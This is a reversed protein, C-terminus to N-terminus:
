YRYVPIELQFYTSGGDRIMIFEDVLLPCVRGRRMAFAAGFDYKLGDGLCFRASVVINYPYLVRM